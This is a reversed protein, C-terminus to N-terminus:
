TEKVAPVTVAFQNLSFHFKRRIKPSLSLSPLFFSNSPFFRLASRIALSTTNVNRPSFLSLPLSLSPLCSRVSLPVAQLIQLPIMPTCTQMSMPASHVESLAVALPWLPALVHPLLAASAMM